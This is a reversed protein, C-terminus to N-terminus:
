SQVEPHQHDMALRLETVNSLPSYFIRPYNPNQTTSDTIRLLGKGFDVDLELGAAEQQHGPYLQDLTSGRVNIRDRFCAFTVLQWAFTQAFAAYESATAWRDAQAPQKVESKRPGPSM